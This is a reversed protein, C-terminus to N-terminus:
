KVKEICPSSLSFFCKQIVPFYIKFYSGVWFWNLKWPALTKRHKGRRKERIYLMSTLWDSNEHTMPIFLVSFCQCAYMLMWFYTKGTCRLVMHSLFLTAIRFARYEQLVLHRTQPVSPLQQGRQVKHEAKQLVANWNETCNQLMFRVGHSVESPVFNFFGQKEKPQGHLLTKRRSSHLYIFRCSSM